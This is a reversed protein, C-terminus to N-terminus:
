ITNYSVKLSGQFTTSQDRSGKQFKLENIKIELDVHVKYVLLIIKVPALNYLSTGTLLNSVHRVITNYFFAQNVALIHESSGKVQM